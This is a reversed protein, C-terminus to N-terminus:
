RMIDNRDISKFALLYSSIDAREEYLDRTDFEILGAFLGDLHTFTGAEAALYSLRHLPQSPVNARVGSKRLHEVRRRTVQAEEGTFLHMKYLAGTQSAPPELWRSGAWPARIMIRALNARKIALHRELTRLHDLILIASLPNGRLNHGLGLYAAAKLEDSVCEKSRWRPQGLILAREYWGQHRTALLGGQGGTVFKTTGMSYVVADSCAGPTYGEIASGHVHSADEVLWYGESRCYEGIASLDQVHGWMHTVVIMRTRMSVKAIIADLSAFEHARPGIDYLVPKLGLALLPSATARFTLSPVLVEDGADLNAGFYASFLAATGSSCFLLNHSGLSLVRKSLSELALVDSDATISFFEGSAIKDNVARLTAEEYFPWIRTGSM